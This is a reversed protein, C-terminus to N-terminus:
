PFGDSWIESKILEVTHNLADDIDDYTSDGVVWSSDEPNIWYDEYELLLNCAEDISTTQIYSDLLMLRTDLYNFSTDHIFRYKNDLNILSEISNICGTYNSNLYFALSRGSLANLYNNDIGIASNFQSIAAQLSDIFTLSWGYGTLAELHGPEMSLFDAFFVHADTFTGEEFATWGYQIFNLTDGPTSFSGPDSLSFNGVVDYSSTLYFYDLNPTLNTLTITHAQRFESGSQTLTDTSSSPGYYVNVSCPEDTTWYIMASIGDTELVVPETELIPADKDERVKLVEKECQFVFMSISVTLIICFLLKCFSKM